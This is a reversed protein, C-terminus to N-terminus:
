NGRREDAFARAIQDLADFESVQPDGINTFVIDAMRVRAQFRRAGHETLVEGVEFAIPYSVADLCSSAEYPANQRNKPGAM